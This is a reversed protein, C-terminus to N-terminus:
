RRMVSESIVDIFVVCLKSFCIRESFLQETYIAGGEYYNKFSANDWYVGCKARCCQDDEMVSACVDKNM